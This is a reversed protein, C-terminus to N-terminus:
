LLNKDIHDLLSDWIINDDSHASLFEQQYNDPHEHKDRHRPVQLQNLSGTNNPKVTTRINSFMARCQELKITNTVIKAKRESDRRTSPNHDNAYTALLDNYCCYQLDQSSLQSSVKMKKIAEKLNHVVVSIPLHVGRFPMLFTPDHQQTQHELRQFTDYFNESLLKERLRLRWYRDLLGANRLTPTWAYPKKPREM